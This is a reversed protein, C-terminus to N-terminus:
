RVFSALFRITYVMQSQIPKGQCVAPTWDKSTKGIRRAMEEDYSPEIGHVVKVSDVSGDTRVIFTIEFTMPKRINEAQLNQRLIREVDGKKYRPTVIRTTAYLPENNFVGLVPPLASRSKLWEKNDLVFRRYGPQYIVLTSDTWEEIRYQVFGITLQDGDLKWDFQRGNWAPTFSIYADNKQFTYRTYLTDPLLTNEPLAYVERKVWATGALRRKAQCLGAGALLM